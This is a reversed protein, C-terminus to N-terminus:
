GGFGYSTKGQRKLAHVIDVAVVTKRKAHETYTVADRIVSELYNKLAGRTEEFIEGSMRKVGGRQALTRITPKILVGLTDEFILGSMRKVGGRQALQRITHKTLVGRTDKFILGRRRKVGGRQAMLRRITHKTLVGRTDEFILGSGRKVGGRRALQRITPKTIGQICRCVLCSTHGGLLIEELQQELEKKKREFSKEKVLLETKFDADFKLMQEEQQKKREDEIRQLENPTEDGYMMTSSNLEPDVSPNSKPTELVNSLQLPQQSLQPPTQPPTLLRASEFDKILTKDIINSEPEWSNEDTSHRFWEVLYEIKGKRKRKKVLREVMFSDAVPAKQNLRIQLMASWQCEFDKILKKDIINSEPEWSNKDKSCRFWQVLYEIKGKRKRKDVLKQVKCIDAVPAKPIPRSQPVKRSQQQSKAVIQSKAHNLRISRRPSNLSVAQKANRPVDSIDNVLKSSSQPLRDGTDTEENRVVKREVQKQVVSTELAARTPKNEMLYETLSVKNINSM